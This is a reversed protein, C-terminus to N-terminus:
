KIGELSTIWRWRTDKSVRRNLIMEIIVETCSIVSLIWSATECSRNSKNLQMLRDNFSITDKNDKKDITKNRLSSHVLFKTHYLSM